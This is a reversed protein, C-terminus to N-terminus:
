GPSNAAPTGMQPPPLGRAGPVQDVGRDPRKMTIGIAHHLGLEALQHDLRDLLGPALLRLQGEVRTNPVVGPAPGIGILFDVFPKKGVLGGAGRFFLDAPQGGQERHSSFFPFRTNKGGTNFFRDSGRLLGQPTEQAQKITNAIRHCRVPDDM